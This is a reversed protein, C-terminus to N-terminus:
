IIIKLSGFLCTKLNKQFSILDNKLKNLFLIGEYNVSYPALAHTIDDYLYEAAQCYFLLHPIFLNLGTILCVKCYM